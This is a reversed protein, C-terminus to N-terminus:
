LVQLAQLESFMAHSSFYLILAKKYYITVLSNHIVNTNLFAVYWCCNTMGKTAQRSLFQSWNDVLHTTVSGQPGAPSTQTVCRKTGASKRGGCGLVDIQRGTMLHPNDHYSWDGPARRIVTTFTIWDCGPVDSRAM